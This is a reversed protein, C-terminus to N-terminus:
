HQCLVEITQSLYRTLDENHNKIARNLKRSTCTTLAILRKIQQKSPASPTALYILFVSPPLSPQDLHAFSSIHCQHSVIIPHFVSVYFQFRLFRSANIRVLSLFLLGNKNSTATTTISGEGAILYKSSHSSVFSIKWSSPVRFISYSM